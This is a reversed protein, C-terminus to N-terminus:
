DAIKKLVARYVTLLGEAKRLELGILRVAKDKAATASYLNPEMAKDEPV